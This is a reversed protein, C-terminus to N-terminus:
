GPGFTFIICFYKQFSSDSHRVCENRQWSVRCGGHRVIKECGPLDTRFDGSGKGASVAAASVTYFLCCIYAPLAIGATLIRIESKSSKVSLDRIKSVLITSLLEGATYCPSSEYQSSMMDNQPHRIGHVKKLAPMCQLVTMEKARQFDPRWFSKRLRLM